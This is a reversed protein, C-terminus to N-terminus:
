PPPLSDHFDSYDRGSALVSVPGTISKVAFLPPKAGPEGGLKPLRNSSDAGGWLHVRSGLVSWIRRFCSLEEYCSEVVTHDIAEPVPLGDDDRENM